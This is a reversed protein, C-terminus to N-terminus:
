KSSTPNGQEDFLGFSGDKYDVLIQLPQGSKGGSYRVSEVDKTAITKMLSPPSTSEDFLLAQGSAIQVLRKGDPSKWTSGSTAPTNSSAVEPPASPPASPPTPIDQASNAAAEQQRYQDYSMYQDNVDIYVVGGPGYYWWYGDHWYVWRAYNVDWWWWYGAYFPFWFFRPGFYLGYWHLGAHDYYHWYRYGGESHYYYHNPVREIGQRAVIGRSFGSNRAFSMSRSAPVGSRHGGFGGRSWGKDNWSSGGSGGWHFGSGGGGHGGSSSIGGRASCSPMAALLAALVIWLARKM